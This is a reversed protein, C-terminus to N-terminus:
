ESLHLRVSLTTQGKLHSATEAFITVVGGSAGSATFVGQDSIGGVLATDINWTVQVPKGGVLAQYPVTTGPGSIDITTDAPLVVLAQEGADSSGDQFPPVVPADVAVGAEPVVNFTSIGDGTDGCALGVAGAVGLAGFLFLAWRTSKM